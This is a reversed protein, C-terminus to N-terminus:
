ARTKREGYDDPELMSWTEVHFVASSRQSGGSGKGKGKGGKGRNRCDLHWRSGCGPCPTRKNWVEVSVGPPPGPNPAKGAGKAGGKGGKSGGKTGKAGFKKRLLRQNKQFLVWDDLRQQATDDDDDDDEMYSNATPDSIWVGDEAIYGDWDEEANEVAAEAYEPSTEPAAQQAQAAKAQSGWVNSSPPWAAQHHHHGHHQHQAPAAAPASANTGPHPAPGTSGGAWYAEAAGQNPLRRLSRRIDDYRDLQNQVPLLIWRKEEDSLRAKQLLKRSMEVRGAQYGRAVAEELYYDFDVLFDVMTQGRARQFGDWKDLADEQLDQEEPGFEQELIFILNALGNYQQLM